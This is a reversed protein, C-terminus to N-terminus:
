LEKGAGHARGRDRPHQRGRPVRRVGVARRELPRESRADRFGQTLFPEGPEKGIVRVPHAFDRRRRRRPRAEDRPAKAKPNPKVLLRVVEDLAASVKEQAAKFRRYLEGDPMAAPNAYVDRM